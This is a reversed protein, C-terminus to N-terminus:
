VNRNLVQEVNQDMSIALVWERISDHEQPDDHLYINEPLPINSPFDTQLFDTHDVLQSEGEEIAECIDLYHNLFVFAEGIRGNDRLDVGLCLLIIQYIYEQSTFEGAEYFVKDAPLVDTYRLLATSIKLALGKLSSVQNCVLRLSYMHAIFLLTKFHVKYQVDINPLM